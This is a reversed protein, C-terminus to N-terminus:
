FYRTLVTIIVRQGEEEAAYVEVQKTEFTRGRWEGEFRFNRRFGIRGYKAPFKEGEIVTSRVEEETAGRELMRERAHPHIVIEM